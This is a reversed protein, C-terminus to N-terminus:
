DPHPVFRRWAAASWLLPVFRRWAAASWLLIIAPQFIVFSFHGIILSFHNRIPEHLREEEGPTKGSSPAGRLTVLYNPTLLFFLM